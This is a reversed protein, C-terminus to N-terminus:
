TCNMSYKMAECLTVFSAIHLVGSPTLHHLKLGCFQLLLRLFQHSPAGFGREYFASCAVVYGGVSAPSTSDVPVRCTASKSSKAPARAHDGVCALGVGGNFRLFLLSLRWNACCRERTRKLDTKGIREREREKQTTLFSASSRLSITRSSTPQTPTAVGAKYGRPTVVSSTLCSPEAPATFLHL